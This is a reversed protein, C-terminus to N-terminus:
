APKKDCVERIKDALTAPTFPKQLFNVGPELIGHRVITDDTYGSMWLVCMEPRLACIRDAIERGSPKPMVVDILM